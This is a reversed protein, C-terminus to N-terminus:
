ILATQLEQNILQGATRLALAVADRTPDDSHVATGLASKLAGDAVANDIYKTYTLSHTYDALWVYWENLKAEKADTPHLFKDSQAITRNGPLNFGKSLTVNTGATMYYRIFKWALDAKKSRANIAFGIAVSSCYVNGSDEEGDGNVDKGGEKTPPPAIGFNVQKWSPKAFKWRGYWVVAVNRKPFDSDSSVSSTGFIGTSALPGKQYNVFHTYADLMKESQEGTTSYKFTKGDETYLKEGSMEVQMQAFKLADTDLITGYIERINSSNYTTLLFCMLESQKWSMPVHESPYVGDDTPYGVIEALKRGVVKTGRLDAYQPDNADIAALKDEAKQKVAATYSGREENFEDILDKNYIMAFDPSWDKIVAYLDGSGMSETDADYRYYDNLAWLDSETFSLGDNYEAEIYPQLNLILGDRIYSEITGGQMWMLDIDKKGSYALQINGYYDSSYHEKKVTYGEDAYLAEFGEIVEDILAIEDSSGWVAYTLVKPDSSTGGCGAFGLALVACLAASLATKLKKM